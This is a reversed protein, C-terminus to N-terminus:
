ASDRHGLQLLAPGSPLRKLQEFPHQCADCYYIMRCRTPGFKSEERIRHSGCFPCGDADDNQTPVAIGHQALSNRGAESIRDVSWPPDYVIQVDVSTTGPLDALKTRIAAEIVPLATCGVFTPLLRVSVRAADSGSSCPDMRVADVMGLDVISIPMEPDDITKLVDLVQDRSVM